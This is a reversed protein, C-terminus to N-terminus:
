APLYVATIRIIPEWNQLNTKEACLLRSSKEVRGIVHPKINNGEAAYAIRNSRKNTQESIHMDNFTQRQTCM